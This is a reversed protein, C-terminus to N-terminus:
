GTTQENSEGKGSEAPTALAALWKRLEVVNEPWTTQEGRIVADLTQIARKIEPLELPLLAEKLRAIEARLELSAGFLRKNEAAIQNRLEHATKNDRELEANRAHYAAISTDRANVIASLAAIRVELEHVRALDQAHRAFYEAEKETQFATGDGPGEVPYQNNYVYAYGDGYKGRIIRVSV